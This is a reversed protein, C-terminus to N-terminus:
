WIFCTLYKMKRKIFEIPIVLVLLIVSAFIITFLWQGLLTQSFAEGFDWINVLHDVIRCLNQHLVYYLLTNQGIYSLVRSDNLIKVQSVAIIMVLGTGMVLVWKLLWTYNCIGIEITSRTVYLEILYAGICM